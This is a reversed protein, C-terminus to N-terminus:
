GLQALAQADRAANNPTGVGTIILNRLSETIYGGWANVCVDYCEYDPVLGHHTFRLRTQEGEAAIDFSIRTDMWETRDETFGFHNQLCHWVVKEGPEFEVIKMTCRHLDGNRYHFVGGPQDTPGHVDESWWGRVNNVAAFVEAPTQGVVFTVTYSQDSM